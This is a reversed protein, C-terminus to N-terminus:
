DSALAAAAAAVHGEFSFGHETVQFLGPGAPGAAAFRGPRPHLKFDAAVGLRITMGPPLFCTNVLLIEGILRQDCSKLHVADTTPFNYFKM